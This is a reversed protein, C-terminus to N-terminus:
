RYSCSICTEIVVAYALEHVLQTRLVCMVVVIKTRFGQLIFSHVTHILNNFADCILYSESKKSYLSRRRPKKKVEHADLLNCSIAKNQM